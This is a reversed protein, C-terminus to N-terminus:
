FLAALSGASLTVAPRWGPLGGGALGSRGAEPAAATEQLEVVVSVTSSSDVRLENM